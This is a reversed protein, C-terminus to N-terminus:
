GATEASSPRPGALLAKLREGHREIAAALVIATSGLLALGMWGGLDFAQIAFHVHYGLAVLLSLLSVRYLFTSGLSRAYFAVAASVMACVLATAMSPAIGLELMGGLLAISAAGCAYGSGDGAGRRALDAFAAVLVAAIVAIAVEEQFARGAIDMGLSALALGTLVAPVLSLWELARQLLPNRLPNVSMQRVTVYGLLGLCAITTADAAYLYGSRGAIIAIPLLALLRATRGEATRVAPTARRVRSLVMFSAVGACAAVAAMVGPDRVPILLLSANALFLWALAGAAPRALVTFGVRAMPLLVIVSGATWLLANGVTGAQWYAFGPYVTHVADWQTVSYLLAGLVTFCAATSVLGLAIFVRASKPERLWRSTGFGLLSLLLTQSLLLSYRFLDNGAGWRQFLFVGIAAVMVGAGFVRLMASFELHAIMRQYWSAEVIAPTSQAPSSPLDAEAIDLSWEHIGNDAVASM